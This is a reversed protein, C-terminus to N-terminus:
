QSLPPPFPGPGDFPNPGSRKKRVRNEGIEPLRLEYNRLTEKGFSDVDIIFLKRGPTVPRWRLVLASAPTPPFDAAMRSDQGDFSFSAVQTSEVSIGSIAPGNTATRERLREPVSLMDKSPDWSAQIYLPQYLSEGWSKRTRASSTRKAKNQQATFELTGKVGPEVLVAVRHIERKESYNITLEASASIPAATTPDNDIIHQLTASQQAPNASTVVANAAVSSLSISTKENVYRGVSNPDLPQDRKQLTRGEAQADGYLLLDFWETPQDIHTEILLYQAVCFLSRAKKGGGLVAIDLNRALPKWVKDGPPKLEDGGFLTVTGAGGQNDINFRTFLQSEPLKLLYFSHGKEPARGTAICDDLWDAAAETPQYSQTAPDFRLM